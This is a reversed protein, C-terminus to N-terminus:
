VTGGPSTRSSAATSPRAARVSRSWPEGHSATPAWMPRAPPSLTPRVQRSFFAARLPRAANLHAFYSGGVDGVYNLDYRVKPFGTGVIVAVDWEQDFQTTNSIPIDLAPPSKATQTVTYTPQGNPTIPTESDCADDSCQFGFAALTIPASSTPWQDWQLTLDASGGGPGAHDTGPVFAADFENQNGTGNLDALGDRDADAFVGSSHDTASNGASNVWLIGEKRATEVTQAASTAAGTGDGRSDGTAILSCSIIKVHDTAYAAAAAQQM